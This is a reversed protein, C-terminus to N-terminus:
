SEGGTADGSRSPLADAEFIWVKFTDSRSGDTSGFYGRYSANSQIFTPHQKLAAQLDRSFLRDRGKGMATMTLPLRVMIRGEREEMVRSRTAAPLADLASFFKDAIEESQHIIARAVKKKVADGPLMELDIGLWDMVDIGYAKLTGENAREAAERPSLGAGRGHKVACGWTNLVTQLSPLRTRYRQFSESGPLAYCGTKRISPIVETFLWRNLRKSVETRGRSIIFAAAHESIFIVDQIGGPTELPLVIKSGKGFIEEIEPLVQWPQTTTGQAKLLDSLCVYGENTEVNFLTRIQTEEFLFDIIAPLNKNREEEM